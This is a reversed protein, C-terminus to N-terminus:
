QPRGTVHFSFSRDRPQCDSQPCLLRVRFVGDSSMRSVLPVVCTGCNDINIWNDDIPTVVISVQAASNSPLLGFLCSTSPRVVNNQFGSTAAPPVTPNALVVKIEYVGRAIRKIYQCGFEAHVIVGNADVPDPPGCPEWQLTTANLLVNPEVDGWAYMINDKYTGGVDPPISTTAPGGNSSGGGVPTFEMAGATGHTNYVISHGNYTVEFANSRHAADNGNGITFLKQNGGILDDHSTGRLFTGRNLKNFYGLGTQAYSWGLLSEGGPLTSFPGTAVNGTGGGITAKAANINNDRGGGIFSYDSTDSIINLHGGGITSNLAHIQNSDGGGVFSNAANSTNFKITNAFGGGIVGYNSTPTITNSKGGGIVGFISSDTNWKGGGIFSHDSSPAILNTDGGTISSYTSNANITNLHGGGIVSWSANVANTDGGSITAFNVGPGLPIHTQNGIFNNTGGTIVDFISNDYIYNNLGGGMFSVGGGNHNNLGGVIVNDPSGPDIINKAGGGIFSFSSNFVDRFIVNSDGGVIVNLPAYVRNFRGGGVVSLDASSDIRNREGGGITASLSSLITNTLGGGIISHDAPATATFATFGGGTGGTGTGTIHNGEGGGIFGADTASDISNGFGGVIANWKMLDGADDDAPPNQNSIFNNQGGGIFGWPGSLTNSDGGAITSVGMIGQEGALPNANVDIMIRNSRGGGITHWNTGEGPPNFSFQSTIKNHEGGGITSFDIAKTTDGFILNDAGGGIVDFNSQITNVETSKGGGAIVSGETATMVNGSFGGVINPVTGTGTAPAYRMVTANNAVFQVTQANTSGMVQGGSVANGSVLWAGSSTGTGGNSVPLVGNVEGTALDVANSTSGSGTFQNATITGSGSTGLSAGTGVVMAASTNTNSTLEDFGTAAQPTGGGITSNVSVSNTSEDYTLSTGIGDKLDLNSQAIKKGNVSIKNIYEEALKEKTISKDPVSLAYPSASVQTLPRTEANGDIKIGIWHPKSFDENGPLPTSGSGLLVTFIGNTITQTYSGSWVPMTGNPDSYLTATIVHEGTIPNGSAAISGQYSIIDSQPTQADANEFVLVFLLASLISLATLCLMRVAKSTITRPKM